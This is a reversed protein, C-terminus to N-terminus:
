INVTNVKSKDLEKQLAHLRVDFIDMNSDQIRKLVKITTTKGKNLVPHIRVIDDETDFSVAWGFDILVLEGNERMMVNGQHIDVFVVKHDKYLSELKGRIDDSVESAKKNKIPFLKEMMIYGTNRCTFSAYIRPIYSVNRLKDLIEVEREYQQDNSNTQIKAVYDCSKKTTNCALYVAGAKGEGFKTTKVIEWDKMQACQITTKKLHSPVGVKGIPIIIIKRCRGTGSDREQDSRCKSRCKGTEPNTEQKSSCPTRPSKRTPKPLKTTRCLGTNEDRKHSRKCKKVCRGTKPNIEKDSKCKNM